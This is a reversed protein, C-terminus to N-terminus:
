NCTSLKLFEEMFQIRLQQTSNNNKLNNNINIIVSKIINFLYPNSKYDDRTNEWFTKLLTQATKKSIMTKQEKMMNVFEDYYIFGIEKSKFGFVLHIIDKTGLNTKDMKLMEKYLDLAYLPFSQIEKRGWAPKSNITDLISPKVVMGVLKDSLEQSGSTGNYSLKMGIYNSGYIDKLYKFNYYSIAEQSLGVEEAEKMAITFRNFHERNEEHETMGRSSFNSINEIQDIIYKANM